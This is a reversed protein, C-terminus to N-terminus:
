SHLRPPSSPRASRSSPRDQQTDGISDITIPPLTGPRDRRLRGAGGRVYRPQHRTNRRPTCTLHGRRASPRDAPLDPSQDRRHRVDDPYHDVRLVEESIEYSPIQLDGMLEPHNARYPEKGADDLQRWLGPCVYEFFATAAARPNGSQLAAGISPQLQAIFGAGGREPDLSFIPPESLVAGSFLQPHRSLLDVGIRTGGSSAVLLCPQLDLQQILDAADDAHLEVSRQEINGLTSRTHGRRDYAVCDFRDSLLRVQTAGSMQTEACVTSSSPLRDSAPGNSISILVGCQYRLWEISESPQIACCGWAADQQCAISVAPAIGWRRQCM